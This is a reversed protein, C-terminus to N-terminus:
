VREAAKKAADILAQPARAAPNGIEGASVILWADKSLVNLQGINANYFAQEGVGAVDVASSAGKKANAYQTAADAANSKRELVAAVGSKSFYGCTSITAGNSTTNSPSSQQVDTAGGLAAAADEATMLKCADAAGGTTTTTTTSAPGTGQAGATPTSSKGDGGGCAALALAACLSCAAAALSIRNLM